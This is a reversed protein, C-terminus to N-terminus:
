SLYIGRVVVRAHWNHAAEPAMCLRLKVAGVRSPSPLRLVATLAAGPDSLPVSLGSLLPGSAGPGGWAELTLLMPLPGGEGRPGVELRFELQSTRNPRSLDLGVVTAGGPQPPPAHLVVKGGPFVKLLEYPLELPRVPGMEAPRLELSALDDDLLVFPYEPLPAPRPLLRRAAGALWGAWGRGRAEDLARFRPRLQAALGFVRRFAKEGAASLRHLAEPHRHYHLVADCIAGADPPVVVLDRGDKLRCNMGLPDSCLVGVGCVGAEICCGTPFGDFAGPALVFPRNPAVILDMSRYFAPFFSTPQPGHFILRRDDLGAADEPGFNGVVHFRADPLRSLLRRVCELFVDFGKDEGRLTYKFAVFCVDMGEKDRRFARRPPAARALEDVPFLGGYVFAIQDERCLQKDLLYDRTLNQTVIVKRFGPSRLVRALKRDTHPDDIVFDGGPYLTFVFPTRSEELSPLFQCINWLFVTYALRCRVPPGDPGLPLIRGALDPYKQAFARADKDEPGHRALHRSLVVSRPFRRLYATFEAVRFPSRQFPVCGEDSEFVALDV